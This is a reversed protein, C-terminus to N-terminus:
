RPLCLAYSINEFWANDIESMIIIRTVLHLSIGSFLDEIKPNEKKYLFFLLSLTQLHWVKDLDAYQIRVQLGEFSELTCSFLATM